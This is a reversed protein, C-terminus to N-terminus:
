VPDSFSPTSCNMLLAKNIFVVLMLLLLLLVGFQM